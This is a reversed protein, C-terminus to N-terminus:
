PFHLIWLWDPSSTLTPAEQPSWVRLYRHRRATESSLRYDGGETFHVCHAFTFIGASRPLLSVFVSQLLSHIVHLIYTSICFQPQSAPTAPCTSTGESQSSRPQHPSFMYQFVLSCSRIMILSSLRLGIKTQLKLATIWLKVCTALSSSSTIWLNTIRRQLDTSNYYVVVVVYTWEWRM